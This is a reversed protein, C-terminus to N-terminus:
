QLVVLKKIEKNGDYNFLVFYLGPNLRETDIKLTHVGPNMKGEILNKRMRGTIDYISVNVHHPSELYFKIESDAGIIISPINLIEFSEKDRSEERVGSLLTMRGGQLIHKNDDDQVFVVIEASDENINAVDVTFAQTDVFIGGYHLEGIDVGNTNPFMDRFVQYFVTQGNPANYQIGNEVLCYRLNLNSEIPEGTANVSVYLSGADAYSMYVGSVIVELPSPKLIESEILDRWSNRASGADVDGDLHLHPAYDAGYYYIRTQNESINYLYFPDNGPSPWWAHYRILALNDPYDAFIDDLTDNAARCPGCTSSTTLEGIVMRESTYCRTITSTTDNLSYEDGSLGTFYIFEYYFDPSLSFQSFEMTDNKGHFLTDVLLSDRHIVVGMSDILLYAYFNYVTDTGVSTVECSPTFPTIPDTYDDPSLIVAIGADNSPRKGLEVSDIGMNTGGYDSIGRFRVIVTDDIYSSLDHTYQTWDDIDGKLIMLNIWSGGNDTSISVITSDNNGYGWYDTLNWFFYSLQPSTAGVLDVPASVLDGTVGPAYSWCDFEAGHEGSAGVQPSIYIHNEVPSQQWSGAGSAPDLTFTVPPWVEFDEILYSSMVRKLILSESSRKVDIPIPKILSLMLLFLM